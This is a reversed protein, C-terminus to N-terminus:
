NFRLPVTGNIGADINGPKAANDSMGRDKCRAYSSAAIPLGTNLLKGFM